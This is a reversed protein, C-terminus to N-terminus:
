RGRLTALVMRLSFSGFSCLLSLVPEVGGDGWGIEYIINGSVEESFFDYFGPDRNM